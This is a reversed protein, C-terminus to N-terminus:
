AEADRRIIRATRVHRVEAGPERHGTPVDPRSPDTHQHAVVEVRPARDPDLTEDDAVVLVECKGSWLYDCAKRWDDQIVGSMAYGQAICYEICIGVDPFLRRSLVFVMAEVPLHSM